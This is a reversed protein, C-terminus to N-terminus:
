EDNIMRRQDNTELGAPEFGSLEDPTRRRKVTSRGDSVSATELFECFSIM